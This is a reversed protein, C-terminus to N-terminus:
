ASFHLFSIALFYVSLSLDSVGKTEVIRDVFAGTVGARTNLPM